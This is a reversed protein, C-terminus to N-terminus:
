GPAQGTAVPRSPDGVWSSWSGAYLAAEIGVTALALIEHAATVGSGCYVGVPCTGDVGLKTFRERLATVDRFQGSDDLNDETPASLAGPVHGAVPDIPEVEGRYRQAARADLLIGTRATAATGDADLVPISGPQVTIDGPEPTQEGKEITGSLRNWAQLGGDLVRVDTKGAWRLLWWARAAALGNWDDYVVTLGEQRVGHRRLAAQLLAPDPLPHRGALRDPPGALERELDVYAAGPLHGSLYEEYGDLQGLRWRVDLLSVVSGAALLARLEAATVLPTPVADSSTRMVDSNALMDTDRWPYM